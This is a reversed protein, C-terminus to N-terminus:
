TNKATLDAWTLRRGSVATLVKEFRETDSLERLNFAFVRAM